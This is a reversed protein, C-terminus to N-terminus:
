ANPSQLFFPSCSPQKKAATLFVHMCILSALKLLWALLHILSTLLTFKWLAKCPLAPVLFFPSFFSFFIRSWRLIIKLGLPFKEHHSVTSSKIEQCLISQPKIDQAKVGGPTQRRAILASSKSPQVSSTCQGNLTGANQQGTSFTSRWWM